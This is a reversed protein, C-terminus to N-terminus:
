SQQDALLALEEAVLRELDPHEALENLENETLGLEEAIQAATEGSEEALESIASRIHDAMAEPSVAAPETAPEIPPEAAPPAAAQPQAQKKTGFPSAKKPPEPEPAPEPAPEPTQDAPEAAPEPVSGAAEPETNKRAGFLAPKRQAAGDPQAEPEPRTPAPEPAPPNLAVLLQDLWLVYRDVDTQNDLDALLVPHENELLRWLEERTTQDTYWDADTRGLVSGVALRREAIRYDADPELFWWSEDGVGLFRDREV